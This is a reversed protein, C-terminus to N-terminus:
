DEQIYLPITVIFLTGKGEQSEVFIDGKHGKIVEKAISLGLGSGQTKDDKIKEAKESKFYTEFIFPLTKEPIGYGTDKVEFVVNKNSSDLDCSIFIDGGEPTFKIANHVLNDFVQDMREVDAIIKYNRGSFKRSLSTHFNIKASSTTTKQKLTMIEFFRVISVEAFQFSFQHSELKSLQIMDDTLRQLMLSKSVILNIADNREASDEIVNSEIAKAYGLISTIPTKLEHSIHSFFVQRAKRSQILEEEALKHETIDRIIGKISYIETDNYIPTNHFEVWIYDGNKKQWKVIQTKQTQTEFLERLLPRDATVTLEEFLNSNDYFEKQKYGTLTTAAPSIFAFYPSPKLRYDFIIDTAIAALLELSNEKTSLAQHVKALFIFLACAILMPTFLSEYISIVYPYHPFLTKSIGIFLFILLLILKEVRPSDWKMLITYCIVATLVGQYVSVPLLSIYALRPYQALVITILLLLFSYRILFKAASKQIFDYLAFKLFLLAYIDFAKKLFASDFMDIVNTPLLVVCLNGALSFLLSFGFYRIGPTFLERM